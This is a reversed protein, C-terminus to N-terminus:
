VQINFNIVARHKKGYFPEVSHVIDDKYVRKYVPIPALNFINEKNTPHFIM